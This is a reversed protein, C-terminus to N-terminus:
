LVFNEAQSGLTKLCTYSSLPQAQNKGNMKASLSFHRNQPQVHHSGKFNDTNKMTAVKYNICSPHAVGGTNKM